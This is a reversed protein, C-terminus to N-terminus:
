LCECLWRECWYCNFIYVNMTDVQIQYCHCYSSSSFDTALSLKVSNTM